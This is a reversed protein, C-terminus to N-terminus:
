SSHPHPPFIPPTKKRLATKQQMQNKERKLRPILEKKKKPPGKRPFTQEGDRKIRGKWNHLLGATIGLDREIESISKQGSKALELAQVKFSRTYTRKRAM